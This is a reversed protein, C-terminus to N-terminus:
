SVIQCGVNCAFLRDEHMIVSLIVVVFRLGRDSTEYLDAFASKRAPWREFIFTRVIILADLRAKSYPVTKATVEGTPLLSTPDVM